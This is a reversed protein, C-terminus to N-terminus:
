HKDKESAKISIFKPVANTKELVKIEMTNGLAQCM